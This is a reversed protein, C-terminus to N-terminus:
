RIRKKIKFTQNEDLNKLLIMISKDDNIVLVEKEPTKLKIEKGDLIIKLLENSITVVKLDLFDINEIPILDNVKKSDNINYAGIKTRELKTIMAPSNLERGIDRALARIYTGSSAEVEFSFNNKSIKKVSFNYVIRKVPELQVSNGERALDYSHRGNVRISSFSPPTQIIKGIFKKGIIIELDELSIDVEKESIVKGEPDLTDTEVGFTMVGKYTKNELLFRQLFKTDENTAIILLGTAFPDLTGSHGAKSAETNKKVLNVVDNSTIDKDKNVLYFAM